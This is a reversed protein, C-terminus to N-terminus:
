GKVKWGDSSKIVKLKGNLFNYNIRKNRINNKIVEKAISDIRDMIKKQENKSSNKVKSFNPMEGYKKIYEEDVAKEINKELFFDLVGATFIGRLGGGELVLGIKENKIEKM